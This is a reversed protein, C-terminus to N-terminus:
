NKLKKVWVKRTTIKQQQSSKLIVSTYRTQSQDNFLHEAVDGKVNMIKKKLKLRRNSETEM